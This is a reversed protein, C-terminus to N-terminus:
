DISQLYDALDQETIKNQFEAESDAVKRILNEIKNANDFTAKANRLAKLARDYVQEFMPQGAVGSGTTDLLSPDIDFTLAGTELGLPNNGNDVQDM